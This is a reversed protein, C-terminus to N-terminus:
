SSFSDGTHVENEYVEHPFLAQDLTELIGIDVRVSSSAAALQRLFKITRRLLDYLQKRPVLDKLWQKNSKYTAALVLM